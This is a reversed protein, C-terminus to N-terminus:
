GGSPLSGGPGGEHVQPFRLSLGGFPVPGQEKCGPTTTPPKEGSSKCDFAPLTYSDPQDTSNPKLYANGRNDTSRQLAPLSQGGLLIIQPLVHGNSKSGPLTARIGGIAAGGIDFFNGIKPQNLELFRLLPNLQQLFPGTDRLTPDLGHLVRTLAPLGKDGASILPGLNKFLNELDPSLRRLSVLTPQLDTLVPELDRILPETNISFVRLRALTAKTEDLFTPLIRVSQALSDSRAGLETFLESNTSILTSLASENRTVQEFTRGTNKVLNTLAEHRRNLVDVVGQANEAFVGLNGLADNLDQGRGAGAQAVSAQWERFAQRTPKDFIQLLEDFEVAAQVQGNRLRGNEKVFPASKTGTTLEVYTEGILTKQRLIARADSRLPAYKDKLEITALTANGGPALEKKVVKGVSVGAVRVDAQESLTTADTFAVKVEYGKPQLPIPGGFAKWLFLLLGFCVLTFATIVLLRPLTPASTSM